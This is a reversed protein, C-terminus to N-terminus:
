TMFPTSCYCSSTRCCLIVEMSSYPSNQSLYLRSGVLCLHTRRGGEERKERGGGEERKGGGEERKGERKERVNRGGEEERKERGRGNSTRCCFIVEMTPAIERRRGRGGGEGNNEVACGRSQPVLAYGVSDLLVDSEL